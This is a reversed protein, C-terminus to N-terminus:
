QKYTKVMPPSVRRGPLTMKINNNIKKQTETTTTITTREFSEQVETKKVTPLVTEVNQKKDIFYLRAFFNLIWVILLLISETQIVFFCYFITLFEEYYVIFLLNARELAILDIYNDVTFISLYSIFIQVITKILNIEPTFLFAHIILYFILMSGTALVMVTSNVKNIRILFVWKMFLIFLVTVSIIAFFINKEQIKENSSSILLISLPIAYIFVLQKLNETPKETKRRFYYIVILLCFSLIFIQPNTFFYFIAFFITTSVTTINKTEVLSTFSFTRM